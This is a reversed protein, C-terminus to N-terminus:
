GFYPCFSDGTRGGSDVTALLVSDREIFPQFSEHFNISPFTLGHLQPGKTSQAHVFQLDGGVHHKAVPAQHLNQQGALHSPRFPM